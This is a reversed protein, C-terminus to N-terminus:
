SHKRTTESTQTGSEQPVSEDISGPLPKTPELRGILPMLILFHIFYYVTALRGLILWVGEPPKAGSIGLVIVDIVLFWFIQKYWPRYRASRIPSSDLWPLVFLILISTFMAIVGALKAEVFWIDPVARLIAYFPLFYWEPVIHAPTVLPNAKVYNDPHGLYNPAYFVFALLVILFM